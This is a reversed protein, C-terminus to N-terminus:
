LNTLKKLNINLFFFFLKVIYLDKNLFNILKFDKFNWNDKYFNRVLYFIIIFLEWLILFKSYFIRVSIFSFKYLTM